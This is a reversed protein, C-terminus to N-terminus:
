ESEFLKLKLRRGKWRTCLEDGLVTNWSPIEFCDFLCRMIGQRIDFRFEETGLLEQEFVSFKEVTLVDMVRCGDHVLRQCKLKYDVFRFPGPNLLSDLLKYEQRVYGETEEIVIPNERSSKM